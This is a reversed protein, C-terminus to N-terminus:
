RRVEPDFNEAIWIDADREEVTCVFRKVDRAMSISSYPCDLGTELYLEPPGGSAPIRWVRPQQARVSRGAANPGREHNFYIFGDDSWLLQLGVSVLGAPRPLPTWTQDTLSVRYPTSSVALDMGDPSVAVFHVSLSDPIPFLVSVDDNQLDLVAFSRDDRYFLLVRRGDPFWEASSGLETSTGLFRSPRVGSVDALM